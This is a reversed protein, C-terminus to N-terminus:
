GPGGTVKAGLLSHTLAGGAVILETLSEDLHREEVLLDDGTKLHSRLRWVLGSRKPKRKQKAM